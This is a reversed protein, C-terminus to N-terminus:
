WRPPRGQASSATRWAEFSMENGRAWVPSPMLSHSSTAQLTATRSPARESLVHTHTADDSACAETGPGHLRARPVHIMKGTRLQLIRSPTM